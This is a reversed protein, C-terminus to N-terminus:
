NAALSPISPDHDLVDVLSRWPVAFAGTRPSRPWTV